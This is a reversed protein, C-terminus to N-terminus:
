RDRHCTRCGPGHLSLHRQVRPSKFVDFLLAHFALALVFLSPLWGLTGLVLGTRNDGRRREFESEFRSYHHLVMNRRHVLETPTLGQIQDVM